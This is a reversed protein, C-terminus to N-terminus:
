PQPHRIKEAILHVEEDKLWSHREQTYDGSGADFQQLFRVMGAPGLADRLAQLGTKRIENLTMSHTSM